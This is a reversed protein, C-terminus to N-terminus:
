LGHEGFEFQADQGCLTCDEGLFFAASMDDGLLMYKLFATIPEVVREPQLMLTLHGSIDGSIPVMRYYLYAGRPASAVADAFPAPGEDGIDYEGSVALFPKSSNFGSNFIIAIKVRQDRAAANAGAAGQSHGMAAVADLDLRGYYPSDRDGNEATAFDLAHLLESGGGVWRANPAIVFFGQSAIYRLLAAYAEPEACTGNGWLVVPIKERGLWRAPRYVTYLDFALELSPPLRDMQAADEGFFQSFGLCTLGDDADFPNIPNEFGKGVNPEMVAGYPGLPLEEGEITVFTGCASVDGAECSPLREEVPADEITQKKKEDGGADCSAALSLAAVVAARHISAHRPL